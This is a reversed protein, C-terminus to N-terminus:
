GDMIEVDDEGDVMNEIRQNGEVSFQKEIQEDINRSLQQLLETLLIEAALNAKRHDHVGPTLGHLLMEVDVEDDRAARQHGGGRAVCPIGSVMLKEKGDLQKGIHEAVAETKLEGFKPRVALEIGVIAREIQWEHQLFGQRLIPFDIDLLGEILFLLQDLIETTVDEADGNGVVANHVDAFIGDSELIEIIAVVAFLFQHGQMDKFEDAAEKGMDQRIAKDTDTMETQVVSGATDFQLMGAANQTQRKLQGGDQLELEEIPKFLNGAGLIVRTDALEAALPHHQGEPLKGRQM